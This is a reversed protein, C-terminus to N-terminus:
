RTVFSAWKSASSGYSPIRIIEIFPRIADVSKSGDPTLIPTGAAFCGIPGLRPCRMGRVAAMVESALKGVAIADALIEIGAEVGRGYIALQGALENTQALPQAPFSASSDM